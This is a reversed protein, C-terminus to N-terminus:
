KRSPKDIGTGIKPALFIVLAAEPLRGLPPHLASIHQDDIVRQEEGIQRQTHRAHLIQRLIIQRNEIFRVRDFVDGPLMEADLDTFGADAVVQAREVVGSAALAHEARM